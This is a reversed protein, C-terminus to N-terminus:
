TPYNLGLWIGIAIVAVAIVLIVGVVDIEGVM